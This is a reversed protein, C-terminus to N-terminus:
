ITFLLQPAQGSNDTIGNGVIWAGNEFEKTNIFWSLLNNVSSVVKLITGNKDVVTFGYSGAVVNSTGEVKTFDTSSFTNEVSYYDNYKQFKYLIWGSNTTALSTPRTSASSSTNIINALSTRSSAGKMWYMHEFVSTGEDNATATSYWYYTSSSTCTRTALITAYSAATPYLKFLDYNSVTILNMPAITGTTKLFSKSIMLAISKNKIIDSDTSITGTGLTKTGDATYIYKGQAVDSAIATTDSIDILTNNNYIVKNVYPNTATM